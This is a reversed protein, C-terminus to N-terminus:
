TAVRSTSGCYAVAARVRHLLRGGPAEGAEAPFAHPCAPARAQVRAGTGVQMCQVGADLLLQVLHHRLHAGPLRLRVDAAVPAGSCAVPLGDRLAERLHEVAGDFDGPGTVAGEVRGQARQHVQPAEAAGTGRSPDRGAFVDFARPRLAAPLAQLAAGVAAFQQLGAAQLQIQRSDGLAMTGVQGGCVQARLADGGGQDFHAALDAAIAALGVALGPPHQHFRGGVLVGAFLVQWRPHQLQFVRGHGSGAVAPVAEFLVALAIRVGQIRAAAPWHGVGGGRHGHNGGIGHM